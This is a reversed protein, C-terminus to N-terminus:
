QVISAQTSLIDSDVGFNPVKYDVPHPSKKEKPKWSLLPERDVKVRSASASTLALIALTKKNFM